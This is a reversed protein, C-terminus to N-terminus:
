EEEDGGDDDDDDDDDDAAAAAAAAAHLILYYMSKWSRADTREMKGPENKDEDDQLNINHQKTYSANLSGLPENGGECLSAM